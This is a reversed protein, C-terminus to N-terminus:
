KNKQAHTKKPLIILYPFNSCLFPDIYPSGSFESSIAEAFLSPGDLKRVHESEGSINCSGYVMYTLLYLSLDFNPGMAKGTVAAHANILANACIRYTGFVEHAIYSCNESDLGDQPEM